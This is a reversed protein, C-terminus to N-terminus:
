YTEINHIVCEILEPNTNESLYLSVNAFRDKLPASAFAFGNHDYLSIAKGPCNIIGAFCRHLANMDSRKQTICVRADGDVYSLVSFALCSSTATVPDRGADSPFTPKSYSDYLFMIGYESSVSVDIKLAM